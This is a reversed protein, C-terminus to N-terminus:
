VVELYGSLVYGNALTNKFEREESRVDEVRVLQLRRGLFEEFEELEPQADRGGVVAIDIDSEGTDKGSLFSGFLVLADPRFEEELRDVLGSDGLMELNRLRKFEEFRPGTTYFKMKAEAEVELYGLGQLQELSKRVTSYSADLEKSLGRVHVKEGPRRVFYDLVELDPNSLNEIM